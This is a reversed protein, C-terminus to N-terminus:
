GYVKRRYANARRVAGSKSKRWEVMRVSSGYAAAIEEDTRGDVLHWFLGDEPIQLISGM